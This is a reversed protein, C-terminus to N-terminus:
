QEDLLRRLLDTGAGNLSERMEKEAVASVFCREENNRGSRSSSSPSLLSSSRAKSEHVLGLTELSAVVDRFETDKLPQLLGDDRKCLSTYKTFLEAVSPAKNSSKTPTIFPNREQRRTEKNVISCLVAKQQLNLGALRSNTGNNFISSALKAVHAITARPASEASFSLGAKAVPSQPSSATTANIYEGLPAKSPSDQAQTALTEKEVQDIARQVLSFAKRLDGTQSAIKKGCLQIAAPHLCPVYHAAATSDKDLLTRLKDSIISSIQQATYPLFALLQPKLGKSKLRPLFRDTLDLANAIGILTLSSSPHMAWEFINYLIECEADVLSDIEDLMVVYTTKGSKSTFLRRLQSEASAKTSASRPCLDQEMKGYVETATRLSVCNVVSIRINADDEYDQLVEHVIASKGTGPPGSIYTCGGGHTAKASDIFGRIQSKETERGILKAPAASQTFLQRAQTYVNQKRPTTADTTRPTRPTLLGGLARVRHKPTSPTDVLVNKFRNASPTSVPTETPPCNEDQEAPQAGPVNQSKIDEDIKNLVNTTVAARITRQPRAARARKPVANQLQVPCAAEADEFIRPTSSRTVRKRPPQVSAVTTSHDTCECFRPLLSRTTGEESTRTRKGLVSPAMKFSIATSAAKPQTTRHTPHFSRHDSSALEDANSRYRTVRLYRSRRCFTHSTYARRTLRQTAGALNRFICQPSYKM